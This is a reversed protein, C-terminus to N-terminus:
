GHVRMRRIVANAAEQQLIYEHCPAYVPSELLLHVTGAVQGMLLAWSVASVAVQSPSLGREGFQVLAAGSCVVTITLRSPGYICLHEHRGGFLIQIGGTARFGQHGCTSCVLAELGTGDLSAMVAAPRMPGGCGSVPCLPTIRHGIATAEPLNCSPERM